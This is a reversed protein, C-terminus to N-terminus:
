HEKFDKYRVMSMMSPTSAYECCTLMHDNGDARCTNLESDRHAQKIERILNVCNDGIILDGWGMNLRWWDVRTQIKLKPSGYMRLMYMGRNRAQLEMGQRFGIDASDIYINIVGKMLEPHKIYKKQIWDTITDLLYDILQPETKPVTKGENSWFVEDIFAMKRYGETSGYLCMTTASKFTGDKRKKGEGNSLGTDIGIAFDSYPQNMVSIWPMVLSDSFEPYTGDTTHGWMGLYETKYIEPARVKIIEASLDYDKDRFENIKYTSQHLYLGKGFGLNFDPIYLERYGKEELEKSDCNPMFDKVFVDYIWCGIDWPNLAFTIQIFAGDPANNPLRMSGDLKRFDEYSSLDSAEDIYSDTWYGTIFKQSLVGSPDNFGSFRIEQGTQKLVIKYPSTYIKFRDAIDMNNLISVMNPFTSKSNDTDNQRFMVVNRYPCMLIKLIPEVGMMNYSKKTNRGGYFTRYRCGNLFRNTFLGGDYGGGLLRSVVIDAKESGKSRIM